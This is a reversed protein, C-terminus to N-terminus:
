PKGNDTEESIIQDILDTPIGEGGSGSIRVWGSATNVYLEGTDEVFVAQGPEAEEPLSEPDGVIPLLSSILAVDTLTIYTDAAGFADLKAKDAASMLGDTEETAAPVVGGGAGNMIAEGIEELAQVLKKGTSDLMNSPNDTYRIREEVPETGCMGAAIRRLSNVIELGTDDLMNKPNPNAM